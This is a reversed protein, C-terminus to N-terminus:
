VVSKRDRSEFQARLASWAKPWDSRGAYDALGAAIRRGPDLRRSLRAPVLLAGSFAPGGFFKSGTILVMHGRELHTRLRRRGLRMQCADVMVQVKDPWRRAIEELCAEGPAHWGLKSSDMIQLLVGSGSAIATEVAALVAADIDPNPRIEPGTALLPPMVSDAALGAIPTDRVVARGGATKASFHRGRATFATGSGTQDAGVVISTRRPGLAGQALALAHLQSDTGSPSFVVDAEDGSLGLHGRLEDRMAEIRADFAEELGLALASRILEERALGARQYARESIPSATSSSLCLTEPAPAPGCGYDNLGCARDLTLRPDGGRVLLHELPMFLESLGSMRRAPEFGAADTIRLEPAARKM